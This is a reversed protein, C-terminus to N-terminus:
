AIIMLGLGVSLDHFLHLALDQAPAADGVGVRLTIGIAL